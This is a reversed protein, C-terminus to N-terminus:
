TIAKFYAYICKQGKVKRRADIKNKHDKRSMMWITLSAASSKAKVFPPLELVVGESENSADCTKKLQGSFSSITM